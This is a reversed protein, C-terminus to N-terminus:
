GRPIFFGLETLGTALDSHAWAEGGHSRAVTKVFSLGLGHGGRGPESVLRASTEFAKEWEGVSLGKGEVSVWVRWSNAGADDVGLKILSAHAGYCIANGLLKFVARELLRTDGLVWAGDEPGDEQLIRMARERALPMAMESAQYLLQGLELDTRVTQQEEARIHLILDEAMTLADWVRAEIDKSLAPNIADGRQEAVYLLALIASLPARLDHSLWVLTEDRSM